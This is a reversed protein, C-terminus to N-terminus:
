LMRIGIGDSFMRTEDDYWNGTLTIELTKKIPETNAAAIQLALRYKGQPILHSMTNPQVVLDFSFITKDAPIDLKPNDERGFMARKAPEIVHGLDCHKEMGPSIADFFPRKIHTWFLNMPLFSEMKKFSGDAQQKLLEAAFVEVLEARQNGSNKVRIRFYYCDAKGTVRGDQTVSALTTKHCDPPSVVILVDLKPRMLWSRIKDQFIAIIALAITGIAILWNTIIIEDM